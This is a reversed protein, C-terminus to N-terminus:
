CYGGPYGLGNDTIQRMGKGYLPVLKEGDHRMSQVLVIEGKEFVGDAVKAELEEPVLVIEGRPAMLKTVLIENAVSM